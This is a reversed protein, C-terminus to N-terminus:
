DFDEEDKERSYINWNILFARGTQLKSLHAPFNCELNLPQDNWRDVRQYGSSHVQMHLIATISIIWPFITRGTRQLVAHEQRGGSTQCSNQMWVHVSYVYLYVCLCMWIWLEAGWETHAHVCVCIQELTLISTHMINTQNNMMPNKRMDCMFWYGWLFVFPLITWM